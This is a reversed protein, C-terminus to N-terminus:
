VHHSVVDEPTQVAPSDNNMSPLDNTVSTLIEQSLPHSIQTTPEEMDDDELQPMPTNGETQPTATDAMSEDDSLHAQAHPALAPHKSPDSMNDVTDDDDNELTPDLEEDSIDDLKPTQSRSENDEMDQQVSSLAKNTLLSSPGGPINQESKNSNPVTTDATELTDVQADTESPETVINEQTAEVQITEAPQETEM